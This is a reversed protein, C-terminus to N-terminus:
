VEPGNYDAAVHWKLDPLPEKSNKQIRAKNRDWRVEGLRLNLGRVHASIPKEMDSWANLGVFSM